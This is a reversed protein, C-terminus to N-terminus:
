TAVYVAGALAMVATFQLLVRMGMWHEDDLQGVDDNRVM